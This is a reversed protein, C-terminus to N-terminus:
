IVPPTFFKILPVGPQLSLRRLFAQWRALIIAFAQESTKEKPLNLVDPQGHGHTGGIVAGWLPLHGLNRPASMLESVFYAGASFGLLSLSSSNFELVLYALWRLYFSLTLLDFVGDVWGYHSSSSISWWMSLDRLPSAFLFPFPRDAHVAASAIRGFDIKDLGVTSSLGAFYVVLPLASTSVGSVPLQAM